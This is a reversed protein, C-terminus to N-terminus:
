ECAIKSEPVEIVADEILVRDESTWIWLPVRLKAAASAAPISGEGDTYNFQAPVEVKHFKAVIGLMNPLVRIENATQGGLTVM